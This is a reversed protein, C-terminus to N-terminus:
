ICVLCPPQLAGLCGYLLGKVRGETHASPAQRSYLGVSVYVVRLEAIMLMYLHSVAAPFGWALAGVYVRDDTDCCSGPTKFAGGCWSRLIDGLEAILIRLRSLRFRCVYIVMLEAILIYLRLVGAPLGRPVWM